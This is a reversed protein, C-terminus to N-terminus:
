LTKLEGLARQYAKDLSQLAVKADYRELILQRANQTLHHALKQDQLLAMCASNFAEPTDAILLHKGNQVTLGECGVTTSIVPVGITMAELIKVRVGGGSLLPVVLATAKTWFPKTEAVYGHLNVGRYRRALRQLMRPPRAGVIDYTLDPCLAQLKAYGQHLWWIVGESNPPWFM